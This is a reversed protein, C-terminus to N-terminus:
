TYTPFTVYNVYEGIYNGAPAYDCVYLVGPLNPCITAACGIETTTKWVMQTFHEVEKGNSSRGTLFNYDYIELYWAVTVDELSNFGFGINQGAGDLFSHDYVCASSVNGAHEALRSSWTLDPVHHFRRYFNHTDLAQTIITDFPDCLVFQSVLVMMTILKFFISTFVM